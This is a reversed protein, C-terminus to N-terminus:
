IKFESGNSEVKYRLPCWRPSTKIQIKSGGRETKCILRASANVSAAAEPHNCYHRGIGNGQRKFQRKECELCKM